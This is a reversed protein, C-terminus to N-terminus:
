QGNISEEMQEEEYSNIQGDAAFNDVSQSQTANLSKISTANADEEVNKEYQACGALLSLPLLILLAKHLM